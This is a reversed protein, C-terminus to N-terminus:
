MPIFVVVGGMMPLQGELMTEKKPATIREKKFMRVIMCVVHLM